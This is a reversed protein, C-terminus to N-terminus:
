FPLDAREVHAAQSPPPAFSLTGPGAPARPGGGRGNLIVDTAVIETRYRKQGDKEYSSSEIRGTVLIRDGKTLIKALGEARRGWTKVSHWETREKKNNEKDFYVETTALRMMLRPGGSTQTLEPDAGLNGLLTVMNLGESMTQAWPM